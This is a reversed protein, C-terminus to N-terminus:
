PAIEVGLISESWLKCEANEQHFLLRTSPTTRSAAERSGPPRSRSGRSRADEALASSAGFIPLALVAIGTTGGRPNM